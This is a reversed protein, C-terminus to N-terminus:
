LKSELMCSFEMGRLHNATGHDRLHWGASDLQPDIGGFLPPVKMEKRTIEESIRRL